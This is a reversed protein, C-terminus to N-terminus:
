KEGFFTRYIEKRIEVFKESSVGCKVVPNDTTYKSFDETLLLGRSRYEEYISTTPLPTFFSVRIDDVPLALIGRRVMELSELTDKPYGIMFYARTRIGLKHTLELAKEVAAISGTKNLTSRRTSLDLSEVGFRIEFCGSDKMIRLLEEDVGRISCMVSYKVDLGQKKIEDALMLVREKNANFTLDTFYFVNKGTLDIAEKMEDVLNGPSRWIVNHGWIKCSDCFRCHNYCGRSYAIQFEPYDGVSEDFFKRDRVPFNLSDLNTIRKRPSTLCVEGNKEYALGDIKTIDQDKSIADVLERFTIEGEGIVGFDISEHLVMKPFGSVHYGGVVTVISPNKEKIKDCLRETNPATFTYVSFGVIDPKENLIRSILDNNSLHRQSIIKVKYDLPLQAALYQLALPECWIERDLYMGRTFNERNPEVLVIKM